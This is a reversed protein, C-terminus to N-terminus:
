FEGKDYKLKLYDMHDNYFCKFCSSNGKMRDNIKERWEFKCKKCRWYYSKFIFKSYPSIQFLDFELNVKDNWEMALQPYLYGISNKPLVSMFYEKPIIISNIDNVLFKDMSEKANDPVVCHIKIFDFIQRCLLNMDRKTFNYLIDTETLKNLGVERIRLLKIDEGEIVRNKNNDADTKDKHFYIGDYEIAFNLSPVFIDLEMDKVKYRGIVNGFVLTMLYLIRREIASSGYLKNVPKELLKIRRKEDQQKKLCRPCHDFKSFQEINRMYSQKCVDCKWYYKKSLSPMHDLPGNKLVDWRVFFTNEPKSLIQCLECNPESILRDPVSKKYSHGCSSHNWWVQVISNCDHQDSNKVTNWYPFIPLFRKHTILREGGHFPKSMDWQIHKEFPEGKKPIQYIVENPM